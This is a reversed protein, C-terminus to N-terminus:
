RLNNYINILTSANVAADHRHHAVNIEKESLRVCLDDDAFLQCIRYALLPTEEFRYLFGTEGDKVMDMTGGTYSAVVPVGLLQAEGVSNPSNEIASPCVFVHSKLYQAKMKEESLPGLFKICEEVRLKRILHLLYDTYGNRKLFSAKIFDSGAVYLKTDPFQRQILPLAELMKHLGKIPYHGQSLFISHRECKDVCWEGTYFSSRLTENCFHYKLGANINWACSMDWSTRGIVHNVTKLLEVEYSGRRAMRRKQQFITDNRVVDRLTMHSALKNLSIGGYYYGAYVSVLGQMSVVVNDAGCAKVWALSHAYETGHIHVIDPKFDQNIKKLFSEYAVDYAGNKSRGSPVLYYKIPLGDVMKLEDTRGFSVVGMRITHVCKLINVAASEMWGGVVPVPLGIEKCLQPFIINSIWLIRM